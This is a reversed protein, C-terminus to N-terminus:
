FTIIGKQVCDEVTYIDVHGGNYYDYLVVDNPILHYYKELFYQVVSKIRKQSFFNEAFFIKKYHPPAISFYYMAVCFANIKASPVIDSKTWSMTKCEVLYENNGLDFEHLKRYKGIGLEIKYKRQLEIKKSKFFDLALLEFDNGVDYNSKAGVRQFEKNPM